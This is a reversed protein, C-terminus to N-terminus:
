EDLFSLDIEEREDEVTTLNHKANKIFPLYDFKKEEVLNQWLLYTNRTDM